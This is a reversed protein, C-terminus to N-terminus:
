RRSWIQNLSKNGQSSQASLDSIHKSVLVLGAEELYSNCQLYQDIFSENVEVLVSRINSIIESGGKLILHEIGDVDLKVYDPQPINFKDKAM